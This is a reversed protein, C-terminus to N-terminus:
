VWRLSYVILAELLAIIAAFFGVFFLVSVFVVTSLIVYAVIDSYFYDDISVSLFLGVLLVFEYLWHGGHLLHHLYLIVMPVIPHSRTWYAGLVYLPILPIYVDLSPDWFISLVGFAIWIM